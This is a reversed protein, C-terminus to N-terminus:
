GDTADFTMGAKKLRTVLNQGLATAPTLVGGKEGAFQGEVLALASESLMKATEGYGPDSTGEVLGRVKKGQSTTAYVGIRFFGADREAKSPGEGPKPVIRAVLDRSTKQSAALVFAALGATFGAAMVAGKAGKSFSMTEEYSFGKGYRHGLLANSRRVIRTNVAGM